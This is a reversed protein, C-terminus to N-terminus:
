QHDASHQNTLPRVTVDSLISAGDSLFKADVERDYRRLYATLREALEWSEGSDVLATRLISRTSINVETLRDDIELLKMTAVSGFSTWNMHSRAVVTNNKPDVSKLSANGLSLVADQCLELAEDIGRMVTISRNQRVEYIEPTSRKSRNRAIYDSFALTIAGVAYGYVAAWLLDGVTGLQGTIAYAAM